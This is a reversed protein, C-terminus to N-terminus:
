QMAILDIRQHDGIEGRQALRARQPRGLGGGAKAVTAVAGQRPPGCGDVGVLITHRIGPLDLVAQIWVVGGVCGAVEVVGSVGVEFLVDVPDHVAEVRLARDRLLRTSSERASTSNPAESMVSAPDFRSAM